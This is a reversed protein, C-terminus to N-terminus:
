TAVSGILEMLEIVIVQGRYGTSNKLKLKALIKKFSLFKTSYFRKNMLDTMIM